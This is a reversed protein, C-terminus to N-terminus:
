LRPRWGDRLKKLKLLEFESFNFADDRFMHDSMMMFFQGDIQNQRFKHAVNPLEFLFLCDSLGPVSLTTLDEPIMDVSKITELQYHILDNESSGRSESSYGSCRSPPNFATENVISCRALPPSINGINVYLGNSSTIPEKSQRPTAKPSKHLKSPENHHWNFATSPHPPPPKSDAGQPLNYQFASSPRSHPNVENSNSNNCQGYGASILISLIISRM